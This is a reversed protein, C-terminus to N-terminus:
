FGKRRCHFSHLGCIWPTEGLDASVKVQGRLNKAARGEDSCCLPQCEVMWSYWMVQKGPLSTLYKKASNAGEQEAGKQRLLVVPTWAWCAHCVLRVTRGRAQPGKQLWSLLDEFASPCSLHVKIGAGARKSSNLSNHRRHGKFQTYKGHWTRRLAHTHAFTNRFTYHRFTHRDARCLEICFKSSHILMRLLAGFSPLSPLPRM